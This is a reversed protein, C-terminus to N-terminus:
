VEANRLLIHVIKLGILKLGSDLGKQFRGKALLVGVITLVLFLLLLILRHPVSVRARIVLVSEAGDTERSTEIDKPKM